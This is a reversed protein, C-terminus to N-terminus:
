YSLEIITASKAPVSLGSLDSEIAVSASRSSASNLVVKLRKVSNLSESFRSLKMDVKTENKNMVVMVGKTNTDAKEPYRFYVYVGEKPLYHTLKSSHVAASTKRWNLLQKVFAQAEIAEKSLGKGTRANSKDQPWGGAFDSRIVGHDETGKNSMLIETGYFLQPIGRTTMLFTLAMKTLDIDENLQTHLRSMDHNDGIVVLNKPSPYQFDNALM